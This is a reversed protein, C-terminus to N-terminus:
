VIPLLTKSIQRKTLLSEAADRSPKGFTDTICMRACIMFLQSFIEILIDCESLDEQWKVLSRQGIISLPGILREKGYLEHKIEEQKM